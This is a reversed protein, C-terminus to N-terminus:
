AGSRDLADRVSRAWREAHERYEEAAGGACVDAVTVPWSAVPWRVVMDGARRTVRGAAEAGRRVRRRVDELTARGDLRDALCERLGALAAATYGMSDPHQLAYSAVAYFHADGGPGGPVEAELLLLAHFNDRCSGGEPVPAGCEPCRDAM